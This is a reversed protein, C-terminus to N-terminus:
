QEEDSGSSDDQNKRREDLKQEVQKKAEEMKAKMKSSFNNLM